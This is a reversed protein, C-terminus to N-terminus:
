NNLGANSRFYLEELKNWEDKNKFKIVFNALSYLEELRDRGDQTSYLKILEDCAERAKRSYEEYSIAGEIEAIKLKQFIDIDFDNDM